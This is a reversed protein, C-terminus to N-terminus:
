GYNHGNYIMFSSNNKKIDLRAHFQVLSIEGGFMWRVAKEKLERKGEHTSNKTIEEKGIM